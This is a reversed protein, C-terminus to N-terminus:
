EGLLSAWGILKSVGPKNHVESCCLEDTLPYMFPKNVSKIRLYNRELAKTSYPKQVRKREIDHKNKKLRWTAENRLSLGFKLSNNNM